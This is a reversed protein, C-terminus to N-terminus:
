GHSAYRHRQYWGYSLDGWKPNMTAILVLKKERRWAKIEKERAIAAQISAYREFYVLSTVNYRTAFGGNTHAKHLYVRRELNGTVGVYIVGRQGAMIYVYYCSPM